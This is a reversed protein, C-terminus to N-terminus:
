RGFVISFLFILPFYRFLFAVSLLLTSFLEIEVGILHFIYTHFIRQIPQQAFSVDFANVCVYAICDLRAYQEFKHLLISVSEISNSSMCAYMSHWKPGMGFLQVIPIHLFFSSNKSRKRQLCRYSRPTM